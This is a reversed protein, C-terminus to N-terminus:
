TAPSASMGCARMMCRRPRSARSGPMRSTRTSSSSAFSGFPPLPRRRRPSSISTTLRRRQPVRQVQRPLQRRGSFIDNYKLNLGAEKNKGVEPRLNPIPCSASCASTATRAPSVLRRVAAPPMRLRRDANGHDVPARYGEAYSVYPTFGAVPTVGITIKPSFRDGGGGTAVTPSHLDYRDYRIASVAEFWTSYNQKLQAFGGSVTRLGSPTTINSNGRSDSTRVDDQFADVGLTVANRWDGVNFRTTNYVDIGLTDLVYGRKDGVCGSINNGPNGPRAFAAAAPSATTSLDQDPRQRDPQRLASM